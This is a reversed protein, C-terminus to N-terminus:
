VRFQVCAFTETDDTDGRRKQIHKTRTKLLPPLRSEYSRRRRSQRSQRRRSSFPRSKKQKGM